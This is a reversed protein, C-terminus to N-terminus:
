GIMEEEEEMLSTVTVPLSSLTQLANVAMLTLICCTLEINM